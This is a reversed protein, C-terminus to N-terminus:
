LVSIKDKEEGGAGGSTLSLFDIQDYCLGLSVASYWQLSLVSSNQPNITQFKTQCIVNRWRAEVMM